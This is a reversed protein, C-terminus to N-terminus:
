PAKKSCLLATIEGLIRYEETSRDHDLQERHNKKRFTEVLRIVLDIQENTLNYVSIKDRQETGCLYDLSVNFIAAMNRLIDLPPSALGLEYKSVAAKSIGLRDGLKTQTMHKEKRLTKLIQGFDYAYEM